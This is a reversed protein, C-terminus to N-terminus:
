KNSYGLKGQKLSVIMEASNKSHTVKGEKANKIAKVTVQNPLDTIIKVKVGKLIKDM